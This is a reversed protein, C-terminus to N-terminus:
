WGLAQAGRLRQLPQLQPGRLAQQAVDVTGKRGLQQPEIAL